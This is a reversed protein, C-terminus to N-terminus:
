DFGSVGEKLLWCGFHAVIRSYLGITSRAYGQSCLYGAFAKSIIHFQNGPSEEGACASRPPKQNM